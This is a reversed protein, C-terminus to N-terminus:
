RGTVCELALQLEMCRDGVARGPAQEVQMLFSNLNRTELFRYTGARSVCQEQTTVAAIVRQKLSDELRDSKCVALAALPVGALGEGGSRGSSHGSSAPRAATTRATSARAGAGSPVSPVPASLSAVSPRPAAPGPAAGPTTPRSARVPAASRQMTPLPAAAAAVQVDPRGSHLPSVPAPGRRASRNPESRPASAPALGAMAPAASPVPGRDRTAAFQPSRATRVPAATSTPMSPAVSAVPALDPRVAEPPTTSPRSRSVRNPARTPTPDVRDIAAVEVRPAPAVPAPVSPMRRQTRESPAPEAALLPTPAPMVPAPRPKAVPKPPPPPKPAQALRPEPKPVVPKPQPTPKPVPKPKVEALKQVPPEPIPPPVVPEPPLPVAPETTFTAVVVGSEDAHDGTVTMVFTALVVLVLLFAPLVAFTRRIRHGEAHLEARVRALEDFFRPEPPQRYPHGGVRLSAAGQGYHADVRWAGM